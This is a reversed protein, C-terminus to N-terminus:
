FGVMQATSELLPYGLGMMYAALEKQVINVQSGTDFFGPIDVGGIKVMALNRGGFFRNKIRTNKDLLEVPEIFPLLCQDPRACIHNQNHDYINKKWKKMEKVGYGVLDLSTFEDVEELNPKPKRQEDDPLIVRNFDYPTTVEYPRTSACVYVDNFASGKTHEYPLFAGEDKGGRDYLEKWDWSGDDDPASLKFREARSRPDAKNSIACISM